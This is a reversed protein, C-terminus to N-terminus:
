AASKENYLFLYRRKLINEYLNSFIAVRDSSFNWLFQESDSGCCVIEDNSQIKNTRLMADRSNRELM